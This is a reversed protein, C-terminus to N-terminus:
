NDEAIYWSPQLMVALYVTIHLCLTTVYICPLCYNMLQVIHFCCLGLTGRPAMAVIELPQKQCIELIIM